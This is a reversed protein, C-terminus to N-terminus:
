RRTFYRTHRNYHWTFAAIAGAIAAALVVWPLAALIADGMKPLQQPTEETPPTEAPPEEPNTFTLQQEKAEPTWEEAIMEDDVFLQEVLTVTGPEFSTIDVEEFTVTATGSAEEPVFETSAALEEDGVKVVEGSETNVLKATLTYTTGVNLNEYFVTDYWSAAESILVDQDDDEADHAQTSLRPQDLDLNDITGLNVTVGNRAIVVDKITVLRLGTNAKCPLEEITYTDFPLAGLNNNPETLPGDSTQGFWIGADTSYNGETNDNGNTNHTHANWSASTSAYGNEDTVLVHAEGTTQSTIKFPVGALRKSDSEREKILQLDGRIVQDAFVAVDFQDVNEGTGQATIQQIAVASNPLYGTPEKTEQILYTGLPLCAEGASNTYLADGSIPAQKSVDILGADDTEFVWTRTAAGSAEAASPTDYFGDYYRVTFQAGALTAGGLPANGEANFTIEGDHKGLLATVANSQPTDRVTEGNVRTTAGTAVTAQYVTSDLAYGSPATTEKVYYTGPTLAPSKAYGSGDTTLTAVANSGADADARNAYVGYTTGQLSYAANGDTIAPISSAKQLDIWGQPTYTVLVQYANSVPQIAYCASVFDAPITKALMRSETSNPNNTSTNANWSFLCSLAWNRFESNTKALAQSSDCAFVDAILLHTLALYRNNTMTSGDYWTSPFLSADFGPGDYGYYIIKALEEASHKQGGSNALTYLPVTAYDGAAPSDLSPQACFAVLGNVYLIRTGHGGYPVVTNTRDVHVTGGADATRQDLSLVVAPVGLALVLLAALLARAAKRPQTLLAIFGM